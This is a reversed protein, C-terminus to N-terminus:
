IFGRLFGAVTKHDIALNLNQGDDFGGKVIGVLEGYMNLLAGGSSGPSTPATHQIMSVESINRFGAIIGDSVTNLLGLPSGIAVVRQGRVLDPGQYLHIPRRNVPDIRILALDNEPHYKILETTFRPEEEGELCVGYAAAGRVVHFNTLIYGDQNILVGSGSAFPENYQDYVRIMVISSALGALEEYSLEKRGAPSMSQVPPVPPIQATNQQSRNRRAPHTIDIGRSGNGGPVQTPVNGIGGQVPAPVTGRGAPMPSPANGMGGAVPAPANGRGGMMGAPVNGSTGPMSVPATGMGGPTPSPTNGRGGMMGSPVNGSTGPMSVPATGMGGPMPSPVTQGPFPQPINEPRNVTKQMEEIERKVQEANYEPIRCKVPNEKKIIQMDKQLNGAKINLTLDPHICYVDGGCLTLLRLFYYENTKVCGTYIMKPFKSLIRTNKFLQPFYVGIRFLLVVMFNRVRSENPEQEMYEMVVQCFAQKYTINWLDNEFEFPLRMELCSDNDKRKQWQETFSLYEDKKNNDIFSDLMGTRLYWSKASRDTDLLARDAEKLTELFEQEGSIGTQLVFVTNKVMNNCRNDMNIFERLSSIAIPNIKVELKMRKEETCLVKLKMKGADSRPM